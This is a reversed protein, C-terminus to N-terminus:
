YSILMEELDLMDQPLPASFNMKKGTIPHVLSLSIAHLAQRENSWTGNKEEAMLRRMVPSDAANGYVPDGLLPHGKSMLHVRIQHTRGTDLHCEIKSAFIQTGKQPQYGEILRYHTVATKGGHHRLAMRQRNRPDRGINGQITGEHPLPCGMVFAIYRRKLTRKEFQEALHQHAANTKAVVMLGSTDKDLRHVIGPKPGGGMTSLANGCHALLGHVLTYETNGAGPHVVLGAAKNLVLIDDDEFLIELDMAVPVLACETPAMPLLTIQDGAQTKISAIKPLAGNILILGQELHRGIQTRNLHPILLSLAKDLRLGIIAPDEVRYHLTEQLTM